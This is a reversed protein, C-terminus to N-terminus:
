VPLVKLNAAAAQEDAGVAVPLSYLHKARVAVLFTVMLILAGTAVHATAIDAPKRWLVTLIGLPIQAALLFLLLIAPRLLKSDSRNHYIIHGILGLLLVAVVIAWCRHAFHLWIQGETVRDLGLKLRYDNIAQLNDPPLLHGYSTPFDPIALGAQLHRMCAGLILQIYIVGVCVFALTILRRSATTLPCAPTQIWWRSSIAAMFAALCFVAQAFCGHVIALPLNILDVRLGGLIGQIIVAILVSTAVWKVWRPNKTLWACVTLAICLMGVFSGLLRHTHEYFIGGVWLRPPFLFMNYGYSNPWDPVSMGAHHSTVLGGLFILPFTFCVVALSLLQLPFSYRRPTM